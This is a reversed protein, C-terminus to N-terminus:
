RALPILINAILQLLRKRRYDCHLLNQIEIAIGDIPEVGRFSSFQDPAALDLQGFM